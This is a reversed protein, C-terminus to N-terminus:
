ESVGMIEEKSHGNLFEYYSHVKGDQHKYSLAYFAIMGDHTAIFLRYKIKNNLLGEMDFDMVGLTEHQTYQYKHDKDNAFYYRYITYDEYDEHYTDYHNGLLEITEDIHRGAKAAEKLEDFTIDPDYIIATDFVKDAPVDTTPIATQIPSIEITPEVTPEVTPKVTSEIPPETSTILSNEASCSTIAVLMCLMAISIVFRM